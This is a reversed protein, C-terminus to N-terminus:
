SRWGSMGRGLFSLIASLVRLTPGEKVKQEALIEMERKARRNEARAARRRMEWEVTGPQLGENFRAPKYQKVKVTRPM